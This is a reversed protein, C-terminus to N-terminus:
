EYVIDDLYFVAGDPNSQKTITFCFGGIINKLDAEEVIIVYQEWDKTLEIPGISRSDSDESEKGQIGGIKFNNIIEGGKEGKVWFSIREAGTLNFGPGKDGWNNAPETWYLGAWDLGETDEVHPNYTIKISTKGNKFTEKCAQNVTLSRINGMYGYPYYHNGKQGAESYVYFPKFGSKNFYATSKEIKKKQKQVVSELLETSNLAVKKQVAPATSESVAAVSINTNIVPESSIIIGDDSNVSKYNAPSDNKVATQGANVHLEPLVDCSRLFLLMIIFFLLVSLVVTTKKNDM